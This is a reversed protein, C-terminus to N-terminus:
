LSTLRGPRIHRPQFCTPAPSKWSTRVADHACFYYTVNEYDYSGGPPNTTDVTMGCVPDTAQAM